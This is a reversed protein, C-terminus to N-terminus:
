KSNLDVIMGSETGFTLDDITIKQNANLTVTSNEPTRADLHLALSHLEYIPATGIIRFAIDRSVPTGVEGAPVVLKELASGDEAIPTVKINGDVKGEADLVDCSLEVELPISNEVRAYIELDSFSVDTWKTNIAVNYDTKIRFDTFCFKTDLYYDLAIDYNKGFEVTVFDSCSGQVKTNGIKIRDPIPSVLNQIGEVPIKADSDGGLNGSHSLCFQKRTEGAGISIKQGGAGVSVSALTNGDKDLSSLDTTLSFDFPTGNTAEMFFGLDALTFSLSGDTLIEPVDGVSFIQEKCELEPYAKVSVSKPAIDSISLSTVIQFATSASVSYSDLRVAGNLTVDGSMELTSNSIQFGTLDFKSLHCKLSLPLSKDTTLELINDSVRKVGSPLNAPSITVFDPFTFQFGKELSIDIGSTSVKMAFEIIADLSAEKVATIHSDIGTYSFGVEFTQNEITFENVGLSSLIGPSVTAGDPYSKTESFTGVGVNEFSYQASYKADPAVRFRLTGDGDQRILGDTSPSLVEGISYSFSKDGLLPMEIKGGINMTLDIPKSLDYEKQVCSVAGLLLLSSMLIIHNRM